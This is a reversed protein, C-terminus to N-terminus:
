LDGHIMMYVYIAYILKLLLQAKNEAVITSQGKDNMSTCIITFSLWDSCWNNVVCWGCWFILCHFLCILRIYAKPLEMNTSNNALIFDAGEVYCLVNEFQCHCFCFSNNNKIFMNKRHQGLLFLAAVGRAMSTVWLFKGCQLFKERLTHIMKWRKIFTMIKLLQM